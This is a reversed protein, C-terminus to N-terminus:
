APDITRYMPLLTDGKDHTERSRRKFCGYLARLELLFNLFPPRFFGAALKPTSHKIGPM